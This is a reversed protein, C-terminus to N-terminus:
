FYLFYFFSSVQSTWNVLYSHDDRKNALSSVTACLRGFLKRRLYIVDQMLAMSRLLLIVTLTLTLKLQKWVSASFYYKPSEWYTKYLSSVMVKGATSAIWCSAVKNEENVEIDYHEVEQGEVVVWAMYQGLQVRTNVMSFWNIPFLFSAVLLNLARWM